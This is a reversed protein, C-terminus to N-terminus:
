RCGLAHERGLIFQVNDKDASSLYRGITKSTVAENRVYGEQMEWVARARQTTFAYGHKAYIANRGMWLDNCNTETISKPAAKLLLVDAMVAQLLEEGPTLLRAATDAAVVVGMDPLTEDLSITKTTDTPATPEQNEGNPLLALTVGITVFCIALLRIIQGTPNSSTERAQTEDRLLDDAQSPVLPTAVEPTAVEPTSPPSQVADPEASALPELAIQLASVSDHRESPNVAIARLLEKVVAQPIAPYFATPPPLTANAKRNLIEFETTAPEWPLRGALMEYLTMGLAYIDARHDVDKANTYQEPAMYNVTGMGTGTRTGGGGMEKAIGFDLLKLTEDKTLLANEPKLDRHVVQNEHAHQVAALMQKFLPWARPWPIPGSVEGIFSDLPRGEVYEMVLALVGADVVLDHVKVIGPHNLELGLKAEREFRAQFDANHAYQTHMVKIAVDGGQRKAMAESRHRGRYVMGMGGQGITDIVRYAGVTTPHATDSGTLDGAALLQDRQEEFQARTLLGRDLLTVLKELKETVDAM